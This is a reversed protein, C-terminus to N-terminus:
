VKLHFELSLQLDLYYFAVPGLRIEVFTDFTNLLVILIGKAFSILKDNLHPTKGIDRLTTM